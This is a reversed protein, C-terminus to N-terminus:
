SRRSLLQILENLEPMNLDNKIGYKKIYQDLHSADIGLSELDEKQQRTTTSLTNDYDKWVDALDSDENRLRELWESEKKNWNYNIVEILSYVKSVTEASNFSYKEMLAANSKLLEKKDRLLFRYKNGLKESKNYLGLLWSLESLHKAYEKPEIVIKEEQEILRRQNILSLILVLLGYMIVIGYLYKLPTEIILYQIARFPHSFKLPEVYASDMLIIEDANLAKNLDPIMFIAGTYDYNYKNVDVDILYGEENINLLKLNIKENELYSSDVYFANNFLKYDAEIKDENFIVKEPGSLGKKFVNKLTYNEGKPNNIKLITGKLPPNIKGDLAFSNLSFLTTIVAIFLTKM